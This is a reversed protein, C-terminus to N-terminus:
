PHDAARRPLLPLAEGVRRACGRRLRPEPADHRREGARAVEVEALARRAHDGRVVGADRRRDDRGARPVPGRGHPHASSSRPRRRISPMTSSTAISTRPSSGSRRPPEMWTTVFTALNRLPIGDLVLEWGILRVADVARMGHEPLRDDPAPELLFRNGYRVALAELEDSLRIGDGGNTAKASPEGRQHISM